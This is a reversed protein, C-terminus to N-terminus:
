AGDGFLGSEEDALESRSDLVKLESVRCFLRQDCYRCTAAGRKPDVNARGAAIQEATAHLDAFWVRLQQQWDEDAGDNASPKSLRAKPLDVLKCEGSRLQAYAVASIKEQGFNVAYIPLQPQDIRPPEWSARSDVGTKFDIVALSDDALQDIRDIRINFRFQAVQAAFKKEVGQVAFPLRASEVELWQAMLESLREQELLWYQAPQYHRKRYESIESDIIRKILASTQTASQTQLNELSALEAWLAAIVLHVLEGRRRADLGLQPSEIAQSGLRHIAYGRFPCAAQDAFFSVANRLEASPDLPLGQEDQIQQFNIKEVQFAKLDTCPEVLRMTLGEPDKRACDFPTAPSNQVDDIRRSFSLRSVASSAYSRLFHAVAIQGDRATDSGSVGAKRQLKYPLLPNLPKSAPWQYQGLGCWAVADPQYSSVEEFDIVQIAGLAPTATLTRQQIITLLHHLAHERTCQGAFPSLSVLSDLAGRWAELGRQEITTSHALGPWGLTELQAEFHAQWASLYQRHPADSRLQWCQELRNALDVLGHKEERMLKILYTDNITLERVYARLERDLLARATQEEDWHGIYPDLLLKSVEDSALARPLNLISLVSDIIKIQALPLADPKIIDGAIKKVRADQQRYSFRKLSSDLSDRMLSVNSLAIAVCAHPNALRQEVAWAVASELETSEEDFALLDASLSLQPMSVGSSEIQWYHPALAKFLPPTETFGVLLPNDIQHHQAASSPPSSDLDSALHSLAAYCDIVELEACLRKFQRQWRAFASVELSTDAATLRKLPIQWLHATAWAEAALRTFQTVQQKSLEEEDGVVQEWLLTAQEHSILTPQQPFAQPFYNALWARWSMLKPTAWAVTGTQHQLSAYRQRILAAARATPLLLTKGASLLECYNPAESNFQQNTSRKTM